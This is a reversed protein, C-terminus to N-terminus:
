LESFICIRVITEEERSLVSVIRQMIKETDEKMFGDANVSERETMRFVPVFPHGPYVIPSNSFHIIMSAGTAALSTVTENYDRPSQSRMIHIVGTVEPKICDGNLLTPRILCDDYFHSCFLPQNLIPDNEPIVLICKNGLLINFCQILSQVSAESMQKTTSTFGFILGTLPINKVVEPISLESAKENIWEM